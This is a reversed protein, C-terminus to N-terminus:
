SRLERVALEWPAKREFLLKAQMLLRPSNMGIAGALRDQERYCALFKRDEISGAVVEVTGHTQGGRDVPHPGRVSGVLLLKLRTRERALRGPWSTAPPLWPRNPRM